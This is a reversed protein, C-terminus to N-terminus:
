GIYNEAFQKWEEELFANYTGENGHFSLNDSFTSSPSSPSLYIKASQIIKAAGLYVPESGRIAYIQMISYRSDYDDEEIDEGSDRDIFLFFQMFRRCYVFGFRVLEMVEVIEETLIQAAPAEPFSISRIKDRYLKLAGYPTVPEMDM